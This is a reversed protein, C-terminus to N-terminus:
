IQKQNPAKAALFRWSISSRGKMQADSVLRHFRKAKLSNPVSWEPAAVNPRWTADSSPHEPLPMGRHVNRLKSFAAFFRFFIDELLELSVKFLLLVAPLVGVEMRATILCALTLM